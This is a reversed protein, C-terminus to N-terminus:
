ADANPDHCVFTSMSRQKGGVKEVIGKSKTQMGNEEYWVKGPLVSMSTVVSVGSVHLFISREYRTPSALNGNNRLDRIRKAMSIVSWQVHQPAEDQVLQQAPLCIEEEVCAGSDLRGWLGQFSSTCSTM